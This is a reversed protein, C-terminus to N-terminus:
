RLRPLEREDSMPEVCQSPGKFSRAAFVGPQCPPENRRLVIFAAVNGTFEMVLHSRTQEAKLRVGGRNRGSGGRERLRRPAVDLFADTIDQGDDIAKLGDVAAQQIPHPRHREAVYRKAIQEGFKDAIARSLM